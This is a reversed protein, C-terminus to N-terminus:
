ARPVKKFRDHSWLYQEPARRINDELFKNIRAADAAPDDSPFNKLAPFIELRYGRSGPLREGFFPVVPAASSHAVRSLAPNTPAPIGFFPVMISGKGRYGQDNAYWIPKGQKLGMLLSRVDNRPIAREFIRERNRRMVDEIVPNAIPRYMFQMDTHMGLIRGIIELQTFHGALLLVGHGQARAAQLHEMGRVETTLRRLRHESMWWCMGFEIVGTGLATFHNKAIKLRQKETMEPFCMRLNVLTVQWRRRALLRLIRGLAYGVMLQMKYPCWVVLRMFGLLLWTPWYRPKLLRYQM